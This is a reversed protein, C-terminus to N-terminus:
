WGGNERGSKMIELVSKILRVQDISFKQMVENTLLKKEEVLDMLRAVAACTEANWHSRVIGKDHYKAFKSLVKKPISRIINSVVQFGSHCVSNHM